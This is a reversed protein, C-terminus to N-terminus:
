PLEFARLHEWTFPNQTSNYWDWWAIAGHTPAVASHLATLQAATKGFTPCAPIVRTFGLGRYAAISRQPYGPGQNNDIDYIQPIVFDVGAFAAWPFRNFNWPAGYSTLGVQLGASRAAPLLTNMLTPAAAPADNYPAEADVILGGAGCALASSVMVETFERERGPWPFGWVWCQRGAARLAKAHAVFGSWVSSKKSAYQWIAQFALWNLGVHEVRALMAEITGVHKVSRVFMGKGSPLGPLARLLRDLAARTNPGVIGDVALGESAQVDRIGRDLLYLVEGLSLELSEARLKTM